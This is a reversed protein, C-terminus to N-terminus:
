LWRPLPPSERGVPGKYISRAMKPNIGLTRRKRKTPGRSEAENGMAGHGAGTASGCPSRQSGPRRFHHTHARADVSQPLLRHALQAGATAPGPRRQRGGLGCAGDEGAARNGTRWELTSPSSRSAGPRGTRDKLPSDARGAPSRGASGWSGRAEPHPQAWLPGPLVTRGQRDVERAVQVGGQCGRQLGAAGWSTHHHGPPGESGSRRTGATVTNSSGCNM